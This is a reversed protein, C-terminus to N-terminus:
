VTSRSTLRVLDAPQRRSAPKGQIRRLLHGAVADALRYPDTSVTTLPPQLFAALPDNGEGIVALDGPAALGLATMAVLVSAAAMDDLAAVATVADKGTTWTRLGEAVVAPDEDLNFVRPTRLKLEAAALSVCRLRYAGYETRRASPVAYGIRSHGADRLTSLQLRAVDVQLRNTFRSFASDGGILTLVERVGSARMAEVDSPDIAVGIVAVPSIARWVPQSAREAEWPHAVVIFGERALEHSLRELLAGFWRDIAISPPVLFLVADSTGRVLARAAASPAYDLATAAALVRERTKEPIQQHPTKNLVYSVTTASVGAARGVDAATVRKGSRAAQTVQRIGEGSRQTM